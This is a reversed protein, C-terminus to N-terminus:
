SGSRLRMTDRQAGYADKAYEPAAELQAQTLKSYVFLTGDADRRFELDDFALAVPKEGIGLFGGVDIVVADIRGDEALIVDNIEGVNNDGADYVVAGTLDAASLTAPEAMPLATRAPNVAATERTAYGEDIGTASTQRDAKAAPIEAYQFEPAQNLEDKTTALVLFRNGNADNAWKLDKFSAAVAKEGIGLFGGVGIVVADITGNEGVLLDEIEGIAEADKAGSSYVAQGIMASARADTAPANPMFTAADAVGVTLALIAATALFKRIM